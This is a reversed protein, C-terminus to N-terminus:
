FGGTIVIVPATAVSPQLGRAESILAASPVADAVSAQPEVVIVEISPAKCLLPHELVCVLVNVALSPHLLVLVTELVTVQVKSLVTVIVAFPVVNFAPHM